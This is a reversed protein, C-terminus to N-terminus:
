REMLEGLLEALDEAYGGATARLEETLGQIVMRSEGGLEIVLRREDLAEAPAAIQEFGRSSGASAALGTSPRGSEDKEPYFIGVAEPSLAKWALSALARAMSGRPGQARRLRSAAHFFRLWPLDPPSSPARAGRSGSTALRPPRPPEAPLTRGAPCPRALLSRVASEVDGASLPRFLIGAAGARLAREELRTERDQAPDGIFLVPVDRGLEQIREFLLKGDQAWVDFDSIVADFDEARLRDLATFPNRAVAVAAGGSALCARLVEVDAARRSVLLIGAGAERPPEHARPIAPAPPGDDALLERIEEGTVLDGAADRGAPGTM